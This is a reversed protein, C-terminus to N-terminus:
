VRTIRYMKSATPNGSSDCFNRPQFGAAVLEDLVALSVGTGVGDFAISIKGSRAAIEGTPDIQIFHASGRHDHADIKAAIVELATRAREGVEGADDIGLEPHRFLADDDLNIRADAAVPGNKTIAVPNIEALMCDNARYVGYLRTAMQALPVLTPG